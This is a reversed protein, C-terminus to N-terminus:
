SPARLVTEQGNELAYVVGQLNDLRNLEADELGRLLGRAVQGWLGHAVIVTPEAIEALVEAIRARFVEMGEGGPAAAFLELPSSARLEPAEALVDAYMRGQWDGAHIAMLRPDLHYARGGLAIDATQRTRTLPSVICRPAVAELIPEMIRAQESAHLFGLDSLVSDSQGQIRRIANWTTEGHRLFWIPPRPLPM